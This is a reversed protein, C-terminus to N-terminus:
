SLLLGGEGDAQQEWEKRVERLGYACMEFQESLRQLLESTPRSEDGEIDAAIAYARKGQDYYSFFGDISQDASRRQLSEPFMGSWFLAVDGIHRHVDRRALGVRKEAELLMQVVETVPQGTNRRVRVLADTRVFRLLLDSLYDVLQVDVVGMRGHFIYENLGAFFRELPSTERAPSDSM